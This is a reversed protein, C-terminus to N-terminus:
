QDNHFLDEIYMRQNNQYAHRFRKTFIQDTLENQSPQPLNQLLFAFSLQHKILFFCRYHKHVLGLMNAWTIQFNLVYLRLTAYLPLPARYLTEVHTDYFNVKSYLS